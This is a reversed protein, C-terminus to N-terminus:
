RFQYALFFSFVASALGIAVCWAPPLIEKIQYDGPNEPDYRIVIIDNPQVDDTVVVRHWAGGVNYYYGTTWKPAYYGGYWHERLDPVTTIRNSHWQQWLKTIVSTAIAQGSYRVSLQHNKLGYGVGAAISGMGILILLVSLLGVDRRPREEDPPEEVVGTEAMWADYDADIEDAPPKEQDRQIDDLNRIRYAALAERARLLDESSIWLRPSTAEGLPTGGASGQLADGVISVRIGAEELVDAIANAEVIDAASCLELIKTRDAANKAPTPQDATDSDMEALEDEPGPGSGLNSADDTARRFLPDALGDRDTGCNWCVDFADDLAENCAPCHWM